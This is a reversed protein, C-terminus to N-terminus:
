SPDTLKKKKATFYYVPDAIIKEATNHLLHRELGAVQLRKTIVLIREQLCDDCHIRLRPTVTKHTDEVAVIYGHILANIRADFMM